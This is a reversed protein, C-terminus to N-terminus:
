MGGMRRTLRLVKEMKMNPALDMIVSKIEPAAPMRLERVRHGYEVVVQGRQMLKKAWLLTRRSM